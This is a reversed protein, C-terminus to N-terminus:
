GVGEHTYRSIRYSDLNEEQKLYVHTAHFTCSAHLTIKVVCVYVCAFVCVCVCVCICVCVFEMFVCVHM